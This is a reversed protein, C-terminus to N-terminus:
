QPATDFLGDPGSARGASARSTPCTYRRWWRHFWARSRGLVRCIQEVSQGALRLKIARLRDAFEDKM